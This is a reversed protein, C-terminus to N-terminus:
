TSELVSYAYQLEKAMAKGISIRDKYYGSETNLIFQEGKLNIAHVSVHEHRKENDSGVIEGYGVMVPNIFTRPYDGQVNTVILRKHLGMEPGAIVQRFTHRRLWGMIAPVYERVEEDIDEVVEAKHPYPLTNDFVLDDIEVM